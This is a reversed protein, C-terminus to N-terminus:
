IVVLLEKTKVFHSTNKIEEVVKNKYKETEDVVFVYRKCHFRCLIEDIWEDCSKHVVEDKYYEKKSYPPCTMLCEYTGESEFIDKEEVSCNELNLFQIIKNSEAVAISNLDQGIYKKELSTTGLLRGSFGSFPDFVENFEECYRSLIYKALIPNFISVRPCIKSINFGKLIKSPDVDNKYILRNLIVKKLLKDDNWAEKTSPYNGVHADYISHHFTQIISDGLRANPKYVESKYKCLSRYDSLMRADDYKPYPFDISRCWNFLDSEYNFVDKDISKILDVLYKIDKEEQGEVIVHFIHDKPVIAIRSEDYYDEVHSGDPDSMYSHFYKGDCDILIKYDPIYFDYEHSWIDGNLMYRRIYSIQYQDLLEAVHLELKSDKAGNKFARSRADPNHSPHDYGTRAKYSDWFTSLVEPSKMPHDVGYKKIYSQKAKERCEPRCMPSGEYSCRWKYYCEDSCTKRIDAGDRPDIEFEKGCVMCKKYHKGKCYNQTNNTPNFEKGCWLCIRKHTKQYNDMAKSHGFKNMCRIDKCTEPETGSCLYVFDKGCIPCTKHIEKKCYKQRSSEPHFKEGCNVCTYLKLKAAKSACSRSCVDPPDSICKTIFKNGCVLCTREIDKGCYIKRGNTSVFESGCRVCHRLEKMDTGRNM